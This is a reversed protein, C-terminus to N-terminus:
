VWLIMACDFLPDGAVGHAGEPLSPLNEWEGMSFLNYPEGMPFLNGWEGISLLNEWEGMSFGLM